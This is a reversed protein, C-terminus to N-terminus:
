IKRAAGAAIDEQLQRRLAEISGFKREPRRFALLQVEIFEGYAEESFDYLYSEVGRIHEETVTPKYGVNSIARYAKGGLRVKSDYVGNPPLLKNKDPLINVTPFGLKRGLQRGHEVTGSVSYPSELFKELRDVKGNEVLERIYTSSVERGEVCVKDILQVEIGLGAGMKKLLAADGAGRAGFSLDEGAAVFRARLSGALIRRVFEEPEIAATQETLPFEVLVDIGMNEFIRRKEEKTSLEMGDSLGFFVAPTPDFTFVCSSLGRAKQAQVQALLKRHGIHVGDFKGIAVATERDLQFDAMCGAIGQVIEM